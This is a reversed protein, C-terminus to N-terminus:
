ACARGVPELALREPRLVYLDHDRVADIREILADLDDHVSLHRGTLLDGDGRALRVILQMACAPDAGRGSDLEHSVWAKIHGAYSEAPADDPLGTESLGIPLLGPHV